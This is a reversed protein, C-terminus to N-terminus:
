KSEKVVFEHTVVERIEGVFLPETDEPNEYVEVTLPYDSKIEFWHSKQEFLRALWTLRYAAVSKLRCLDTDTSEIECKSTRTPFELGTADIVRFYLKRM